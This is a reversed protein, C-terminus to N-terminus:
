EGCETALGGTRDVFDFPEGFTVGLGHFEPCEMSVCAMGLRPQMALNSAPLDDFTTRHSKREVTISNRVDALVHTKEGPSAVQLIFEHLYSAFFVPSGHSVLPLQTRRPWNVRWRARLRINTVRIVPLLRPISPTTPTNILLSRQRLIFLLRVIEHQM